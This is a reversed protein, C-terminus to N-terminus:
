VIRFYEPHEAELQQEYATVDELLQHTPALARARQWCLWARTLDYNARFRDGLDKWAGTVRPNTELVETLAAVAAEPQNLARHLPAEFAGLLYALRGAAGRLQEFARLTTRADAESSAPELLALFGSAAEDTSANLAARIEPPMGVPLELSLELFTLLGVLPTAGQLLALAESLRAAIPPSSGTAGTTRLIADIPESGDLPLREDFGEASSGRPPGSAEVVRVTVEGGVHMPTLHGLTVSAPVRKADLIRRLLGPHGGFAYRLFQTFSAVAEPQERTERSVSMLCRARVMMDTQTEREIVEIDPGGFLKTLLSRKGLKRRSGPLNVSLQHEALTPAFDNDAVGGAKLVSYIHQGRNRAEMDRNSVIAQLPKVTVTRAREDIERHQRNVFDLVVRKGSADDYSITHDTWELQSSYAAAPSTHTGERDRQEGLTIALQLHTRVGRV